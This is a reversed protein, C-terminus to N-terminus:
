ASRLSQVALSHLWSNCNKRLAHLKHLTKDQFTQFLPLSTSRCLFAPTQMASCSPILGHMVCLIPVQEKLHESLLQPISQIETPGTNQVRIMIVDNPALLKTRFSFPLHDSYRFVTPIAQFYLHREKSYLISRSPSLSEYCLSCNWDTQGIKYLTGEKTFPPIQASRCM